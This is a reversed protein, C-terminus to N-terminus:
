QVATRRYRRVTERPHARAIVRRLDLLSVHAYRSTTHIHAHGLIQQVHRIDAGGRLLHTACTHRLAHLHVRELKAARAHRQLMQVLAGISLRRGRWATLFLAPEAVRSLLLPRTERLYLDLARASREPIPVLRDKRGKGNRVLLTGSYLDVDAVDLRACEGRRIGTGYLTELIARDRKGVSTSPSPTNVLKEAQRETLVTRPLTVVLPIALDASPDRLLLGQRVLFGFFSKIRQLYSAQTSLALPSERLTRAFSTVHEEGILRVDRIRTERLQGALRDLARASQLLLSDSSRRIRLERAYLEAAAHIRV